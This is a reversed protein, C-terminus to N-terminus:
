QLRVQGHEGENPRSGTIIAKAIHFLRVMASASSDWYEADHITVKLLAINPEELGNPFWAKVMPNWLEKMKEKDHSLTATGSISVYTQDDTDAFALNVQPAQDVETVKASNEKTFFWLSNDPDIGANAMPRSRLIGNEDETTFMAIRIGKIKELIDQLNAEAAPKDM